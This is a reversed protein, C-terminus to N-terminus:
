EMSQILTKGFQSSCYYTQSRSPSGTCDGKPSGVPRYSWAKSDMAGACPAYSWDQSYDGIRSVTATFLPAGECFQGRFFSIREFITRIGVLITEEPKLGVVLRSYPFTHLTELNALMLVQHLAWIDKDISPTQRWFERSILLLHRNRDYQTLVRVKEGLITEFLEKKVVLIKLNRVIRPLDAAAIERFSDPAVLSLKAYHQFFSETFELAADDGGNGTERGAFAPLSVTFSMATMMLFLYKRM